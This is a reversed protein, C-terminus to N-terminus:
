DKILNLELYHKHGPKVIVISNAYLYTQNNDIYYYSDYYYTGPATAGFNAVGNISTRLENIYIGLDLNKQSSALAVVANSVTEGEYYITVQLRGLENPDTTECSSFSIITIILSLFITIRLM